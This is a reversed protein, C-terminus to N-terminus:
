FHWTVPWIIQGIATDGGFLLGSIAGVPWLTLLYGPLYDLFYGRGYMGWPGRAVLDATWYRFATLDAAFGADAPLLVFAVLARLLAGAALLALLYRLDLRAGLNRESSSPPRATSM